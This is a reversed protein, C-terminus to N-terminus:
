ASTTFHTAHRRIADIMEADTDFNGYWGQPEHPPDGMYSLDGDRFRHDPHEARAEGNWAWFNTGQIPGDSTLSAEAARYILEYFRERFTTPASPDYLEGDRPFGFEEIVLPKGVKNALEVHTNIYAEVKSKGSDWTGALNKGDVWEWNLPWIHATMYDINQHAREVIDTRGNTAITGEMGLSVLHNPDLSRILAASDDIWKYYSPLVKEMVDPSVGPRPENCLQWAMLSPDDVYRTGTITNTRTVLTRVYSFFCATAQPNAYFASGADPFAPWAHAPDNMDIYRGTEYWLRTMMGGSWEWNNTFYLVATMDRKALEAMTFDLGVLLQENVKGDRNVFGPKISAKLPGEEAGALIRVNHVGLKQLRDLERILRGRNGFVADSGLYPLYWANAGTFRYPGGGRRFGIGSRRM